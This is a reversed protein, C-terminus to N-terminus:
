GNLADILLPRKKRKPISRNASFDFDECVCARVCAQVCARVCACVCVCVCVCVFEGGGREGRSKGEQQSCLPEALFTHVNTKM